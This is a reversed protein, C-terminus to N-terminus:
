NCNSVIQEIIESDPSIQFRDFVSDFSPMMKGFISSEINFANEMM